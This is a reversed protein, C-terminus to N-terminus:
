NVHFGIHALNAFVALSHLQKLGALMSRRILIWRGFRVGPLYLSLLLASPSSPRSMGLDSSTGPSEGLRGVKEDGSVGGSWLVM